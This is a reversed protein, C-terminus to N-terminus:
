RLAQWIGLGAAVVVATVGLVLAGKALGAWVRLAEQEALQEGAHALELRCTRADSRADIVDRAARDRMRQMGVEAQQVARHTAYLGVLPPDCREVPIGVFDDLGPVPLTASYAELATPAAVRPAACAEAVVLTAIAAYRM